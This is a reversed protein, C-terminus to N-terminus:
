RQTPRLPNDSAPRRLPSRSWPAQSCSPNPASMRSVLAQQSDLVQEPPSQLSSRTAAEPPRAPNESRYRQPGPRCRRARASPQLAGRRWRCASRRNARSTRRGSGCPAPSSRAPVRHGSHRRCRCREPPCCPSRPSTRFSGTPLRRDRRPRSPRCRLDSRRRSPCTMRCAAVGRHGSTRCPCCPPCCTRCDRLGTRARPAVSIGSPLSSSTTARRRRLAASASVSGSSLSFSQFSYM